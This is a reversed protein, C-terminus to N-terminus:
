GRVGRPAPDFGADKLIGRVTSPAVEIGLRKMEGAIRRYGWTPNEIALRRALKQVEKHKRPRGSRNGYTWRRAVLRRHWALLTEPRVFFTSWRARPLIRSLAALLARDAPRLEPRDVQRSLVALQHRLVLIEVEKGDASRAFLAILELVRRLALYLFALILLKSGKPAV